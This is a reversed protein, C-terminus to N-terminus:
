LKNYYINMIIPFAVLNNSTKVNFNMEKAKIRNKYHRINRKLLLTKTLPERNVM